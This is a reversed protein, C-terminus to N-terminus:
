EVPPPTVPAWFGGPAPVPPGQILSPDVQASRRDLNEAMEEDGELYVAVAKAVGSPASELRASVDRVIEQQSEVFGELASAVVRSGGSGSPAHSWASEFAGGLDRAENRVRALTANVGQPSIRFGAV